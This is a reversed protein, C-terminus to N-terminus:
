HKYPNLSSIPYQSNPSLHYLSITNHEFYIMLTQYHYLSLTSLPVSKKTITSLPYQYLTYQIYTNQFKPHPPVTHTYCSKKLLWHLFHFLNPSIHPNWHFPYKLSHHFPIFSHFSIIYTPNQYLISSIPLFYKVSLIPYVATWNM